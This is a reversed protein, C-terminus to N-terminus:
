LNVELKNLKVKVQIYKEVRGMIKTKVSKDQRLVPFEMQTVM